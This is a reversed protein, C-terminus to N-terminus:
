RDTTVPSPTSLFYGETSWSCFTGFATHLLATAFTFYLADAFSIKEFYAIAAANIVLWAILGV